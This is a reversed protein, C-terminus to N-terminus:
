KKLPCRGKIGEQGEKKRPRGRYLAPFKARLRKGLKELFQESGLPRGVLTHRKIAQMAKEEDTLTICDEWEYSNMGISGLFDSLRISPM